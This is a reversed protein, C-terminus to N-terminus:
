IVCADIALKLLFLLSSFISVGIPLSFRLFFMSGLEIIKFLFISVIIKNILRFVCEDLWFLGHFQNKEINLLPIFEYRLPLPLANDGSFTAITELYKGILSEGGIM